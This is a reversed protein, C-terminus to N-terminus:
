YIKEMGIHPIGDELFEEGCIVFGEKKYFGVAYSQAEIYVRKANYRKKIEELASHVLRRGLGTGREMTLVRGIRVTGEEGIPFCRLYAIIRGEHFFYMHLAEKDTEDVEQYPCKQEVVFVATRVRYIEFLEAAALENFSKVTLEL